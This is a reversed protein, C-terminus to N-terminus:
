STGEEVHGEVIALAARVIAADEPTATIIDAIQGKRLSLPGMFLAAASPGLSIAYDAVALELAMVVGLASKVGCADRGLTEALRTGSRPEGWMPSAFRSRITDADALRVECDLTDHSNM